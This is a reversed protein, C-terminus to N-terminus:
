RFSAATARLGDELGTRPRWGLESAARASDIAIRQVEGPRAPAMEPDFEREYVRALLSGLELV